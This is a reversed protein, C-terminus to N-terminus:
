WDFDPSTQHPAVEDGLNVVNEGIRPGQRAAARLPPQCALQLDETHLTPFEKHTGSVSLHWSAQTHVYTGRQHQPLYFCSEDQKNRRARELHTTSNHPPRRVSGGRQESIAMIQNEGAAKM